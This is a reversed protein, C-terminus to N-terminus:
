KLVEEISSKHQTPETECQGTATGPVQPRAEKSIFSPNSLRQLYRKNSAAETSRVARALSKPAM